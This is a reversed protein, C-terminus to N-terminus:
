NKRNVKLVVCSGRVNLSLLLLHLLGRGKM